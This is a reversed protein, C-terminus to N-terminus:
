RPVGLHEPGDYYHYGLWAMMIARQSPTETVFARHRGDHWIAAGDFQDETLDLFERTETNRLYWHTKGDDLSLCEPVYVSKRAGTLHYAVESVVYCHGTLPHAGAEVLRRYRPKLLFQATKAVEQLWKWDM